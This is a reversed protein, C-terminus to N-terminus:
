WTLTLRTLCRRLRVTRRRTNLVVSRGCLLSLTKLRFPVSTLSPSHEYTRTHTFTLTRTFTFTLIYSQTYTKTLFVKQEEAKKAAKKDWKNMVLLRGARLTDCADVDLTRILRGDEQVLHNRKMRMSKYGTQRVLVDMTNTFMLLMAAEHHGAKYVDVVKIDQVTPVELMANMTMFEAKDRAPNFDGLAAECRAVEVLIKRYQPYNRMSCLKLTREYEDCASRTAGLGTLVRGRTYGLLYIEVRFHSAVPDVDAADLNFDPSNPDWGWGRFLEAASDLLQSCRVLGLLRMRALQKHLRRARDPDLAGMVAAEELAAKEGETLPVEVDEDDDKKKKKVATGGSSMETTETGETVAGMEETAATAASTATTGSGVSADDGDKEKQAERQAKKEAKDL